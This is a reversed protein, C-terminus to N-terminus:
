APPESPEEPLANQASLQHYLVGRVVEAFAFTIVLLLSTVAAVILTALPHGKFVTQPLVSSPLTFVTATLFVLAIVRVHNGKILRFSAKIKFGSSDELAIMPVLMYIVSLFLLSLPITVLFSLPSKLANFLYIVALLPIVLILVLMMMNSILWAVRGKTKTFSDRVGPKEGRIIGAIHIQIGLMAKPVVVLLLVYMAIMLLAALGLMLPSGVSKGFFFTSLASCMMFLAYLLSFASLSKFNKQYLVFASKLTAKISIKGM